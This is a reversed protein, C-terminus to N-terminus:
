RDGKGDTDVKLHASRHAQLAPAHFVCIIYVVVVMIRGAGLSTFTLEAQVVAAAAAGKAKIDNTYFIVECSSTM